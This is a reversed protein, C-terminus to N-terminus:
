APLTLGEFFEIIEEAVAKNNMSHGLGNYGEFHSRKWVSALRQGEAFSAIEDCADYLVLGPVKTKQAYDLLNFADVPVDFQKNVAMELGLMAYESLHMVSNFNNLVKRLSCPAAIVVGGKIFDPRQEALYYLLSMGGASHGVLFAPKFHEAVAQLAEAYWKADFRNSSTLGHGPADLAIIRYGKKQFLQVFTRWRASNSEWGHALLVGPGTGEWLYTQINLGQAQLTEWKAGQLFTRDSDRLRGKRPTRFVDLAKHGALKPSFLALTNIQFRLLGIALRRFFARM